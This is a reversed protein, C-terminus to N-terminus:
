WEGSERVRQALDFEGDEFHESNAAPHRTREVWHFLRQTFSETPAGQQYASNKSFDAQFHSAQMFVGQHHKHPSHHLDLGCAMVLMHGTDGARRM